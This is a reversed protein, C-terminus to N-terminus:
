RSPRADWRMDEVPVVTFWYGPVAGALTVTLNEVATSYLFQNVNPGGKAERLWARELRSAFSRRRDGRM